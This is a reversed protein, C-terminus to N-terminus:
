LSGIFYGGTKLSQPILSHVPHIRLAQVITVSVL